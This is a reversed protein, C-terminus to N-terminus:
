RTWSQSMGRASSATCRGLGGLADFPAYDLDDAEIRFSTAVHDRIMRLWEMQADTFSRGAGSHRRLIWNQFNRRVRDENATLRDDLGHGAPHPRCATDARQGAGRRSSTWTRM